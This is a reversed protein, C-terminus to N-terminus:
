KLAAQKTMCAQLTDKVAQTITETTIFIYNDIKREVGGMKQLSLPIADKSSKLGELLTAM